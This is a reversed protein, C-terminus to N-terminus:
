TTVYINANNYGGHKSPYYLIGNNPSDYVRVVIWNESCSFGTKRIKKCENSTLNRGFGGFPIESNLAQFRNSYKM